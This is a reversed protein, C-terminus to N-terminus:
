NTRKGKDNYCRNESEIIYCGDFVMSGRPGTGYQDKSERLYYEEGNIKLIGIKMSGSDIFYYYYNDIDMINIDLMNSIEDYLKIFDDIYIKNDEDLVIYKNKDCVKNSVLWKYFDDKIKKM